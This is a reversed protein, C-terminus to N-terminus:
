TCSIRRKPKVSMAARRALPYTTDDCWATGNDQCSLRFDLTSSLLSWTDLIPLCLPHTPLPRPSPLALPLALVARSKRAPLVLHCRCLQSPTQTLWSCILPQTQPPPLPLDFYWWRAWFTWMPAAWANAAWLHPVNTSFALPKLDGEPQPLAVQQM